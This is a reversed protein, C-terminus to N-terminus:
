YCLPICVTSYPWLTRVWRDYQQLWTNCNVDCGVSALGAWQCAAREPMLLVRRKYYTANSIALKQPAITVLPRVPVAKPGPNLIANQPQAGRALLPYRQATEALPHSAFVCAAVRRLQAPAPTAQHSQPSPRLAAPAEMSLGWRRGTNTILARRHLAPPAAWSLRAQECDGM